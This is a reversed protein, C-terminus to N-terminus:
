VICETKGRYEKPHQIYYQFMHTNQTAKTTDLERHVWQSYGMLNRQRRSKGPLFVPTPQWARRWPVKWVWPSFRRRKHRRHQCIPEKGITGGPFGWTDSSLAEFVSDDQYLIALLGVGKTSTFQSKLNLQLSSLTKPLKSSIIIILTIFQFYTGIVLSVSAFFFYIYISNSIGIM